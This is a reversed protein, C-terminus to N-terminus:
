SAKPYPRVEREIHKATQLRLTDLDYETQLGLWFEPSTGLFRALRLATDATIVLDLSEMVAASDLFGDPGADFDDGPYEM